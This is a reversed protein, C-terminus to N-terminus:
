AEDGREPQRLRADVDAQDLGFRADVIGRAGADVVPRHQVPKLPEADALLGLPDAVGLVIVEPQDLLGALPQAVVELHERADRRKRVVDPAPLATRLASPRANSPMVQGSRKTAVLTRCSKSLAPYQCDVM